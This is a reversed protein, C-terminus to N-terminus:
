SHLFNLVTETYLKPQEMNAIHAADLAAVKAIWPPSGTRERGISVLTAIASRVRCRVISSSSVPLTDVGGTGASAHGAEGSAGGTGGSASTGGTGAAGPSGGSGDTGQGRSSGCGAPGFVFLILTATLVWLHRSPLVRRASM